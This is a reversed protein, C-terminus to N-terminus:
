KQRQIEKLYKIQLEQVQEKSDKKVKRVRKEKRDKRVRKEKRDKKVRIM